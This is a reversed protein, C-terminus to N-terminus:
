LGQGIHFVAAWVAVLGLAPILFFMWSIPKEPRRLLVPSAGLLVWILIKIWVWM